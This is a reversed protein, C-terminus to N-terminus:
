GPFKGHRVDNVWCASLGCYGIHVGDSGVRLWHGGKIEPLGYRHPAERIRYRPDDCRPPIYDGATPARPCNALPLFDPRQLFVDSAADDNHLTIVFFAFVAVIGWPLLVLLAAMTNTIPALPRAVPKAPVVTHTSLYAQRDAELQDRLAPLSMSWSGGLQVLSTPKEARTVTFSVGMSVLGRQDKYVRINSIAEWPWVKKGRFTTLSVGADDTTLVHPHLLMAITAWMFLACFADMLLLMIWVFSPGARDSIVVWSTSGFVASMVLAWLLLGLLKGRDQTITM